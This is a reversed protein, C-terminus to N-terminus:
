KWLDKLDIKKTKGTNLEKISELLHAEYSL